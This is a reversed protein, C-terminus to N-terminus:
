EIRSANWEASFVPSSCLRGGEGFNGELLELALPDKILRTKVLLEEYTQVPVCYLVCVAMM